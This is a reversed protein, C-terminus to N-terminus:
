DDGYKNGSRLEKIYVMRSSKSGIVAGSGM